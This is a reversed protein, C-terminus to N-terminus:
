EERKGYKWVVANVAHKKGVATGERLGDVVPGPKSWLWLWDPNKVLSDEVAIIARRPWHELVRKWIQGIHQGDEYVDFVTAKSVKNKRQKIEINNM